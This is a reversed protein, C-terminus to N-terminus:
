VTCLANIDKEMFYGSMDYLINTNTPKLEHKHSLDKNKTKAM